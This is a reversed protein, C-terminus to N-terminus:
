PCSTTEGTTLNRSIVERVRDRLALEGERGDAAPPPIPEDLVLRITGPRVKWSDRPLVGHSGILTVPVVPIGARAALNFPGRKFPQLAGDASRTGEAFLLVSSGERIKKATSEITALADNGQRRDIAIYTKGLKLGWGFFPLKELEKKYVLRVDQPVGALVAPIDFYSAHNAVYVYNRALDIREIGATRLKVGSLALVGHAHFRALTHFIKGTRHFPVALIELTSVFVTFALLIVLRFAALLFSM